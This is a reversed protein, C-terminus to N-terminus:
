AGTQPEATCYLVTDLNSCSHHGVYLRYEPALDMLYSPIEWLDAPKHYLCVQLRPLHRRITGAAGKLASLEAGEVDLKILDVRPLGAEAVYADLSTAAVQCGGGQSPRNSHACAFEEVFSLSTECSWLAKNVAHISARVSALGDIRAQLALFSAPTPEFLHLDGDHACDDLFRLLTDGEAAGGDIIVDGPRASAQPHGYLPYGSPFLPARGCFRLKLAGRLAQRSEEDALAALIRELGDAHAEALAPDCREVVEDVYVLPMGLGHLQAAIAAQAWSSVLVPLGPARLPLDAPALVSTGDMTQGQKAPDNDAFYPVRVGLRELRARSRRGRGGAGFVVLAEPLHEDLANFPISAAEGLLAALREGAV